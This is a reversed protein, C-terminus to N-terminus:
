RALNVMTPHWALRASDFDTLDNAAIIQRVDAIYARGRESYRLLGAALDRGDLAHGEQRARWRRRRLEVYAPHTNLNRMYARVSDLITPFGRVVFGPDSEYGSPTIGCSECDYSRQGFLANATQAFRSGGWGSEIAAQALTLSPPIVDVRRRLTALKDPRTEYRDALDHLRWRTAPDLTVGAARKVAVRDLFRRQDRIRANARLVAPLVTKFFVRKRVTARADSALVRPVDRRVMAPVLARGQRVAALQVGAPRTTAPDPPTMSNTTEAGAQPLCVVILSALIALGPGRMTAEGQEPGRAAVVLRHGAAAM